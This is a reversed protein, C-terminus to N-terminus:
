MIEKHSMKRKKHKGCKECIDYQNRYEKDKIDYDDYKM